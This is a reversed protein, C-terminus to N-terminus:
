EGSVEYFEFFDEIRRVCCSFEEKIAAVGYRGLVMNTEAELLEGKVLNLLKQLRRHRARECCRQELFKDLIKKELAGIESFLSLVHEDGDTGDAVERLESFAEDVWKEVAERDEDKEWM